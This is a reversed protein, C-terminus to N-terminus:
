FNMEWRCMENGASNIEQKILNFGMKEHIKKSILNDKSCSSIITSYDKNKAEILALKFALSGIGLGRFGDKIEMGWSLKKDQKEGFSIIGVKENNYVICFALSNKWKEIVNEINIISNDKFYNPFNKQIYEADEKKFKILSVKKM